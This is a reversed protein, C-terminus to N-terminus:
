GKADSRSGAQHDRSPIRWLWIGTVIGICALLAQLWPM